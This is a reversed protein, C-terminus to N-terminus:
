VFPKVPTRYPKAKDPSKLADIHYGKGDGWGYEEESRPVTINTANQTPGVLVDERLRRRQKSRRGLLM